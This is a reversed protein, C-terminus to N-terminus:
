NNSFNVQGAQIQTCKDKILNKNHNESTMM